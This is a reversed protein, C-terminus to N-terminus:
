CASGMMSRRTRGIHLNRLCYRWGLATRLYKEKECYEKCRRSLSRFTLTRKLDLSFHSDSFDGFAGTDPGGSNAEILLCPDDWWGKPFAALPLRSSSAAM